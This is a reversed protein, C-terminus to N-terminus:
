SKFFNFAKNKNDLTCCKRGLSCCVYMMIHKIVSSLTWCFILLFMHSPPTFAASQNTLCCRPRKYLHFWSCTLCMLELTEQNKGSQLGVWPIHPTCVPRIFNYLYLKESTLKAIQENHDDLYQWLFLTRSGWLFSFVAPNADHILGSHARGM